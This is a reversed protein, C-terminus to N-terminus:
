WNWSGDVQATCVWVMVGKHTAAATRGPGVARDLSATPLLPTRAPTVLVLVHVGVRATRVFEKQLYFLAMLPLGETDWFTLQGAVFGDPFFVSWDKPKKNMQWDVRTPSCVIKSGWSWSIPLNKNTRSRWGHISECKKWYRFLDYTLAKHCLQGKLFFFFFFFIIIPCFFDARGNLKLAM